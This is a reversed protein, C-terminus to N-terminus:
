RCIVVVYFRRTTARKLARSVSCLLRRSGATHPGGRSREEYTAPKWREAVGLAAGDLVVASPQTCLLLRAGFYMKISVPANRFAGHWIM